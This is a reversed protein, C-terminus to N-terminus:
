YKSQNSNQLMLPQQNPTYIRKAEELGITPTNVQINVINHLKWTYEFIKDSTTLYTDIDLEHLNSQLHERCKPCPLCFMLCSIFAKYSVGWRQNIISPSYFACIHIMWWLPNGWTEKSIKSKDYMEKLNNYSTIPQGTLINYYSHFLYTWIFLSYEDKFSTDFFNKNLRESIDTHSELFNSIIKNSFLINKIHNNMTMFDQMIQIMENSPVIEGLSQYFCKFSNITKTDTPNYTKALVHVAKWFMDIWIYLPPEFNNKPYKTQHYM